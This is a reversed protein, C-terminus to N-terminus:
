PPFAGTNLTYSKVLEIPLEDKINIYPRALQFVKLTQSSYRELNVFKAFRASLTCFFTQRKLPKTLGVQNGQSIKMKIFKFSKSQIPVMVVKLWEFWEVSSRAM